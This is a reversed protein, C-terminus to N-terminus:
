ATESNGIKGGAATYFGLAATLSKTPQGYPSNPLSAWVGKVKAIAEKVRGQQVDVLANKERILEVAAMDQSGPSFDELGLKLKLNRWTTRTIQYAGAATSKCGPGLGANRCMTDSLVKGKWEGTIAPHDSMNSFYSYGYTTNYGREDATGECKRIMMLFAQVNQQQRSNGQLATKM